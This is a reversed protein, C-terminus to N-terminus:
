LGKLKRILDMVISGDGRSREAGDVVTEIINLKVQLLNWIDEEITNECIIYYSNLSHLDSLRGYARAEFQQHDAPTWTLDCNIASGAATINLGVGGAKISMCLYNYNLHPNCFQDVLAQRDSASQKGTFYLAEDGLRRSIEYPLPPEEAFQSAILVKRHGNTSQDYLETALDAIYDIKDEACVQKMRMLQALISQIQQSGAESGGGDWSNIGEWLGDLVKNYKARAKPSLQVTRVIRNIPPLEPLVEKKTKRFMFPQMISRLEEVNRVDKGNYTYHSIFTEYPGAADRDILSLIAWLEQPRNLIPTGTLPLVYKAELKRCAKSRNSEINKIYHAEDFIITDFRALNIVDVWPFKVKAETIITQGNEVRTTSPIDLKTSLADYSIIFYKHAGSLLQAIDYNSPNEGTLEYAYFDTFKHIERVWNPKVMAPVVLLNKKSEQGKYEVFGIACPTKGLGMEHTIAVRGGACDAFEVTVNQFDKLPVKIPVVIDSKVALAVSNLRARKTVQETVYAEADPEWTTSKDALVEVIRFGEPFPIRWHNHASYYEASKIDRLDYSVAKPGPEVIFSRNDMRIHFLAPEKYEAIQKETDGNYEIKVLHLSSLKDKLSAWEKMDISHLEKEANFIRSPIARLLQRIDSRYKKAEWTGHIKFELRDRHINFDTVTLLSHNTKDEIIAENWDNEFKQAAKLKEEEAKIAAEKTARIENLRALLQAEEDDLNDTM